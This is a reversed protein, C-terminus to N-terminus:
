TSYFFLMLLLLKDSSLRDKLINLGRGKYNKVTQDSLGLETCIEANSLGEFYSMRIVKSCQSPLENVARYIEALSEAKIMLHLHDENLFVQERAIVEYRLSENKAVKIFDLCANRVAHYLFAKIHEENEFVQKKRWLKLFLSEIIDQTEDKDVFKSAYFCLPHYYSKYTLDFAVMDGMSVPQDTHPSNDTNRM